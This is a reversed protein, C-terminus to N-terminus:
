QHAHVRGDGGGRPVRPAARRLDLRRQARLLRGRVRARGPRRGPQCLRAAPRRGQGAGGGRQAARRHRRAPLALREAGAFDRRRDRQHMRGARPGLHGRLDARRDARGRFNIPGPMQGPAFVRKEDFVGYNPLDVKFRLAAVRGGDLLAVANYLLGNEVWPTGILMPPAATPPTSPRAGRRRQPLGGAAGAQARPRGASLRLHLARLVRHPRRRRRGSQGACAAGEGCQRRHRRRDSQAARHDAVPPRAPRLRTDM